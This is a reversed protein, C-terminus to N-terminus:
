QRAAAQRNGVKKVHTQIPALAADVSRSMSLEAQEVLSLVVLMRLWGALLRAALPLPPRPDLLILQLRHHHARRVAEVAQRLDVSTVRQALGDQQAAVRRELGRLEGSWGSLVGQGCWWVVDVSLCAPLGTRRNLMGAQRKGTQRGAQSTSVETRRKWAEDEARWKELGALTSRHSSQEVEVSELKSQQSRCAHWCVAGSLSVCVCVPSSSSPLLGLPGAQRGAQRGAVWRLTKSLKGLDLASKSVDAALGDLQSRIEGLAKALAAGGGGVSSPDGGGGGAEQQLRHQQAESNHWM